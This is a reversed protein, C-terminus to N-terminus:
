VSDFGAAREHEVIARQHHVEDGQRQGVAAEDDPRRAVQRLRLHDEGAPRRVQGHDVHVM